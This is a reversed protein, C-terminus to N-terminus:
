NCPNKCVFALAVDVDARVPLNGAGLFLQNEPITPNIAVIQNEITTTGVFSSSVLTFSITKHVSGSKPILLSSCIINITIPGTIDTNLPVHENTNAFIARCGDFSNFRVTVGGPIFLNDFIDVLVNPSEGVNTITYRFSANNNELTCCKSASLLVANLTTFCSASAQTGIATAKAMNSIIYSGPVTVGLIQVMYSILIQGGTPISGLNGSITIIGPTTTNVTLTNPMVVITGININTPITIMDEFLVNNLDAAGINNVTLFYNLSAQNNIITSSCEKTISLKGELNCGPVQFCECNFNLTSTAAKLRIPQIAIPYDGVIEIRYEVTVGKDYRDNSEIKLFQFGQPAPGLEPDNRILSFPVPTFSGCGDIKESVIINEAIIIECIPIGISSIGRTQPNCDTMFKYTWFSRNSQSDYAPNNVVTGNPLNQCAPQIVSIGNQPGCCCLIAYPVCSCDVVPPAQISRDTETNDNSDEKENCEACSQTEITNDM